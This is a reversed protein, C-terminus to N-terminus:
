KLQYLHVPVARKPSAHFVCANIIIATSVVTMVAAILYLKM